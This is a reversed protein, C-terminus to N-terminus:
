RVQAGRVADPSGESSARQRVAAHGTGPRRTFLPHIMRRSANRLPLGYTEWVFISGTVSGNNMRAITTIVAKANSKVLPKWSVALAMAVEMAVPARLGLVATRRAAVRLRTPANRLMWTARVTLLLIMWMWPALPAGTGSSMPTGIRVIMKAPSTPPIRHFMAVQSRPSGDEDDCASNPPSIPDAMAARPSPPTFHSPTTEETMRGAKKEGTTAPRTAASPVKTTKLIVAATAVPGRSFPKRQPWIPDAESTASACPVLSACFVIPTIVRASIAYPLQVSRPAIGSQTLIAQATAM